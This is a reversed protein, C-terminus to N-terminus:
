VMPDPLRYRSDPIPFENIHVLQDVREILAQQEHESILGDLRESMHQADFRELVSQVAPNFSERAFDWIVTRLKDEEHFSLGNDIAWIRDDADVLVHGSKRDGSNSILDFVCLERFRDALDHRDRLTFYHQEFDADVTVQVSGIGFGAERAITCPVLNLGLLDSLEYAAVERRYLGDPYDWLPAEGRLPKYIACVSGVEAEVSVLFTGNSSFPMQGIVTVEGHVLLEGLEINSLGNPNGFTWTRGQDDRVM